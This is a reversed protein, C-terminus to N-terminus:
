PQAEGNESLPPQPPACARSAASDAIALIQEETKTGAPIRDTVCVSDPTLKAVAAYTHTVTEPDDANERAQVHVILAAPVQKGGRSAVRWEAEGTLNSMSRTITEQFNLPHAQGAADVVDVSKRGSEVKRVILSYGAAGPCLLYPTEDPDSMDAKKECSAPSLPTRVSQIAAKPADGSGSQPASCAFLLIACVMTLGSVLRRM